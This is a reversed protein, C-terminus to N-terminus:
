GQVNILVNLAGSKFEKFEVSQFGIETFKNTIEEMHKQFIDLDSPNAEIRAKEGFHRVRLERVGYSKLFEEAAEVQALKDVTVKNGYPIRSALCPSAPKDWVELNFKKALDRIDQKTFEADKLPSKIKNEDAALLGPRFDGLDDFNTGSAIYNINEKKALAVLETYLESKCFYCRNSPNQNYNENDMEHTNIILLRAGIEAALKKADSLENRSISPSDATVALVNDKLVDHAVKLLLVSDIGGSYAVILSGCSKIENRLNQHKQELIDM